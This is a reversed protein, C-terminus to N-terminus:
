FRSWGISVATADTTYIAGGSLGSNGLFESYEVILQGGNLALAGGPSSSQLNSMQIHRMVLDSLRAEVRVRVPSRGSGQFVVTESSPQLPESSAAPMGASGIFCNETKLESLGFQTMLGSRSYHCNHNDSASAQATEVGLQAAAVAQIALTTARAPDSSCPPEGCRCCTYAHHEYGDDFTKWMWGWTECQTKLAQSQEACTSGASNDCSAECCGSSNKSADFDQPCNTNHMGSPNAPWGLLGAFDKEKVQQALYHVVDHHPEKLPWKLGGNASDSQYTLFM